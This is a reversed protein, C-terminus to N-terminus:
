PSCVLNERSTSGFFFFFKKYEKPKTIYVPIYLYQPCEFNPTWWNTVLITLSGTKCSEMQLLETMLPKLGDDEGPDLEGGPLKFFTTGLPLLLM